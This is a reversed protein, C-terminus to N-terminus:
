EAFKVMYMHLIKALQARTADGKPSFTGDGMGNVIGNQVAWIVAPVAYASVRSADTFQDLTGSVEPAGVGRYLMTVM